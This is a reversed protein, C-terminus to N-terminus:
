RRPVRDLGGRTWARRLGAAVKATVEGGAKLAAGDLMSVREAGRLSSTLFVEDAGALDERLIETERVDFGTEAAVELARARAIGPLIRGDAPPTLVTNGAVAFVNARSAELMTDDWDFILPVADATLAAQARDLLERDAWKHGGLGGRLVLTHADVEPARPPLIRQPEIEVPEVEAGLGDGAAPAVTVRLGAIAAGAAEAEIANTLDPPPKRGPFLARLSAALRALHFDLEVPEGDLVLLTEIVGRERDPRPQASVTAM